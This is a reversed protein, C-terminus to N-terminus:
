TRRVSFGPAQFVCFFIAVPCNFCVFLIVRLRNLNQYGVAPIINERLLKKLLGAPTQGKFKAFSIRILSEMFEGITLANDPNMPDSQLIMINKSSGGSDFYANRNHIEEINVRRFINDLKTITCGNPNKERLNCFNCFKYYSLLNMFLGEGSAVAHKSFSRFIKRLSNYHKFLVAKIENKSTVERVIDFIQIDEFAKEFSKKLMEPTFTIVGQFEGLLHQDV